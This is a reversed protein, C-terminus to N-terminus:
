RPYTQGTFNNVIITGDQDIYVPWDVVYVDIPIILTIVKEKKNTPPLPYGLFLEALEEADQVRISGSSFLRVDYDFLESNPTNHIFVNRDAVPDFIFKVTGSSNLDSPKQRIRYNRLNVDFNFAVPLNTSNDIMEYGYEDIMLPNTRFFPLVDKVALTTPVNWYPNQVIYRLKDHFIPTPRTPRGVIVKQTTVTKRNGVVTLLQSGINIIVYDKPSKKLFEKRDEIAEILLPTLNTAADNEIINSFTNIEESVSSAFMTTPMLLVILFLIQLM